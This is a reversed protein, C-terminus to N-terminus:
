LDYPFFESLHPLMRQIFDRHLSKQKEFEEPMFYFSSIKVLAADTRKNLIANLAYKVRGSRKGVVGYSDLFFAYSVLAFRNNKKFSAQNIRLSHKGSHVIKTSTHVLGWNKDPLINQGGFINNGHRFKGWYGIYLSLINKKEDQFNRLFIVGDPIIVINEFTEEQGTQTWNGLAEPFLGFSARLPTGEGLPFFEVYLATIGLLFIVIIWKQIV